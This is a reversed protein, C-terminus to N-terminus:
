VFLSVYEATGLHACCDIEIGSFRQGVAWELAQWNHYNYATVASLGGYGGRVNLRECVYRLFQEYQELGEQQTVLEMPVSFKLYSLQM